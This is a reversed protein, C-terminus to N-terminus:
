SYPRQLVSSYIIAQRLDFEVGSEGVTEVQQARAARRANRADSAAKAANEAVPRVTRPTPQPVSMSRPRSPSPVKVPEPVRVPEPASEQDKPVGMLERLMEEMDTVPEQQRDDFTEQGSEAQRKRKAEQSKKFANLLFWGVVVALYILEEM